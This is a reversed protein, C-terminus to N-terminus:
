TKYRVRAARSSSGVTLAVKQREPCNLPKPYRSLSMNTNKAVYNSFTKLSKARKATMYALLRRLVRSEASVTYNLGQSLFINVAALEPCKEVSRVFILKVQHDKAMKISFTRLKNGRLCKRLRKLKVILTDEGIIRLM